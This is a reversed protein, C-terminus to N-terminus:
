GKRIGGEQIHMSALGYRALDATAPKGCTIAREYLEVAFAQNKALEEEPVMFLVSMGRVMVGMQYLLEGCSPYERIRERVLEMAKEVGDKRAIEGIENAALCQKLPRIIPIGGAVAAEFLFDAGTGEAADLLERGYEAVLDKNATVVHKGARLAELIRTKAPEIGGMVEIVIEIQPDELIETWNDTLLETRVGERVKEKDRVLIKAIELEAGAKQEMENKQRKQWSISEAASLVM